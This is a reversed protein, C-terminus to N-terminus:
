DSRRRGRRSPRRRSETPDVDGPQSRRKLVYNRADAWVEFIDILSTPDLRKEQVAKRVAAETMGIFAALDAYGYAWLKTPGTDPVRESVFVKKRVQRM